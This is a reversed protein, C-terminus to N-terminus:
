KAARFKLDSIEFVLHRKEIGGEEEGEGGNGNGDDNMEETEAPNLFYKERVGPQEPLYFLLGRFSPSDLM